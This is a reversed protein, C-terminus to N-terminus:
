ANAVTNEAPDAPSADDPRAARQPEPWLLIALAVVYLAMAYPIAARVYYDGPGLRHFWTLLLAFSALSFILSQRLTRPILGLALQDYFFLAQPVLAMALLLRGEPRRWRLAALLLVPGVVTRIPSFKEPRSSVNHYWDLPWSPLVLLSVLILAVGGIIARVNPRFLWAPLGLNPKAAFVFGLNSELAAATVLPSWQGLSIAMLFPAGMFIPLRQYGERLLAWALLGASIGLFIGGSVPLPLRATPVVLLLAPLPYQLPDGAPNEPGIATVHYPNTGDLLSRAASWVFFYDGGGEPRSLFASTLLGVVVAISGAIALRRRQPISGSLADASM